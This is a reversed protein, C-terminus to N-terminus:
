QNKNQERAAKKRAKKSLTSESGFETDAKNGGTHPQNRNDNRNTMTEGVKNHLLNGWFAAM